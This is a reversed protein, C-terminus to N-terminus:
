KKRKAINGFSQKILYMIYDLEDFKSIDVQVDGNGWKGLNAINRCKGKPDRIEKFKMNLVLRLKSKLPIVDVFNTNTKYAIYLKLIEEKISSDINLIRKRLEEFLSYMTGGKAIYPHDSEITYKRYKKNKRTRYKDIIERDIKPYPWIKIALNALEKARNIIEEENWHDLKALYRNLRIPSDAFGGKMNKKEEFPRDSLEPNYGTLTLNGITHLYKNHIEEWNEGLEKKWEDSLNENQPMIHEITYEKIDVMEKRDYNELKKLLYSKNKSNYIDKIIFEEKFEEDKPFRKYSDKLILAVKFSELYNEQDMEKYLNSFTKDLSNTPIGCIARRFVYSEIYRVIELLEDKTIKDQDYDEYVKMLFPYSVNVKLTKIDSFALSLEKDKENDFVLNSFYNSYKYIDVVLKKVNNFRRSYSKFESYVNKINPIKGTKITLYDRMFRDFLKQNDCEFNKEILKWYNNYLDDQEKKSLGMLIFNRILDAQTLDLGTSNLSEFILQPNDKEKDLSVDIIILKDLGVLVEEINEGSIRREFFNYNEKIRPSFDDMFDHGDIIKFLSEKDNKTLVLKYRNEGDEEKNILYYNKIKAENIGKIPNKLYKTVVALLLSITTLRQQGDILLLKPISSIQYIGEEVYVISGLFHNLIKNDKGAKIIDEWLQECHKEEWNYSRQYIPVIFQKPGYLLKLLKTENAKM